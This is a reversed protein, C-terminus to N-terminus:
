RDALPWPLPQFVVPGPPPDSMIAYYVEYDNLDSLTVAAGIRTHGDGNSAILSLNEITKIGIVIEPRIVRYKMNVLLDTGGALIRAKNGSKELVALAEETSTPKVYEFKPLRV